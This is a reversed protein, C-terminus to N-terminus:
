WSRRFSDGRRPVLSRPSAEPPPASRAPLSLRRCDRYVRHKKGPEFLEPLVPFQEIEEHPTVHLDPVFLGHQPGRPGDYLREEHHDHEGHEEALHGLHRAVTDRVGNKGVRSQQRPRVERGRESVGAVAKDAPRVEHSLHIKGPRRERGSFWEEPADYLAALVDAQVQRHWALVEQASRERWREYILRNGDTWNLGKEEVPVSQRKIKRLTDAKWYTIHALADKVTWRDKTETRPLLRNWDTESLNSVLRDLREFEQITRKIVEERTHRM